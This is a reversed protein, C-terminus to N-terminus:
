STTAAAALAFIEPPQPEGDYYESDTIVGTRKLSRVWVKGSDPYVCVEDPDNRGISLYILDEKGTNAIQHAVQTRAPCSVCDGPRLAILEDGYRLVGTGSVVFFAEDARQHYHFPCATKGPPVRAQNVGLSGSEAEMYPTLMKYFHGYHEGHEDEVEEIADVNVVPGITESMVRVSANGARARLPGRRRLLEKAARSLSRQVARLM